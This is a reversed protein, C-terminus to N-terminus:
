KVARPRAAARRYFEFNLQAANFASQPTPISAYTTLAQALKGENVLTSGYALGAEQEIDRLVTDDVPPCNFFTAAAKKHTRTLIATSINYAMKWYHGSRAQSAPDAIDGFHQALVKCQMPKLGHASQGRVAWVGKKLLAPDTPRKACVERWFKEINPTLLAPFEVLLVLLSTVDDRCLDNAHVLDLSHAHAKLGGCVAMVVAGMAAMGGARLGAVITALELPRISCYSPLISELDVLPPTKVNRLLNSLVFSRNSSLLPTILSQQATSSCHRSIISCTSLAPSSARHTNFVCGARLLRRLMIETAGQSVPKTPSPASLSLIACGVIGDVESVGVVDGLYAWLCALCERELVGWEKSSNFSLNQSLAFLAADYCRWAEGAEETQSRLAALVMWDCTRLIREATPYDLTNSTLVKSMVTHALKLLPLDLYLSPSLRCSFSFAEEPSRDMLLEIVSCHLDPDEPYTRLQTQLYSELEVTKCNFFTAAAKKHTRTLIATSINYAMKWYHGSRAQSAPDTMDGFHQALVKCQMPKLGHASQGRVAWVGKKLLAPEIPRKACVERWFKEINPTLLAPFIIRVEVLLVLLSTVDDRCLDNAHVLDLSHAHAKLGGCVAMVVAGMAAMGGARLGAVITALELPRISCYSPLISELDVLPPTKVNRLLNSLVFSTSRNSSLLPTILSQQATSSCHRSIISCTSLAPSSARHTNFVCGARLLRRLMIETGGQSVPKTTSPASLSLIACGVMGDSEGVGVVDGLYAWLCALCERELVGWEKSSNFSLNQSLAFLAADYCRWAEGAEETQSRLAALVMWDCTRLIREATPYDLTNSTLVKSMVTHALKLLPLDLYLSPSLRCSFSFAEDPSRDMLLEIVSCHLDPDEPYTRLQTQLYSELEVTKGSEKLVHCKLKRTTLAHPLEKEVKQLWAKKRFIQESPIICYLSSVKERSESDHVAIESCRRFAKLAEKNNGMRQQINGLLKYGAADKPAQKLYNNANSLADKLEGCDLYLQACKLNFGKKDISNINGHNALKDIESKKM